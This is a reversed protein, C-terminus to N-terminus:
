VDQEMNKVETKLKDTHTKMYIKSWFRIETELKDTHTKMNFVAKKHLNILKDKEMGIKTMNGIVKKQRRITRNRKTMQKKLRKLENKLEEIDDDLIEEEVEVVDDDPKWDEDMDRLFEEDSVIFGMMEKSITNRKPRLNYSM